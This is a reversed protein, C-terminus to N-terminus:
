PLVETERNELTKRLLILTGIRMSFSKKTKITFDLFINVSTAYSVTPRRHRVQLM